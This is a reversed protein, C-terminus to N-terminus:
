PMYDVMTNLYLVIVKMIDDQSLSRRLVKLRSMMKFSHKTLTDIHSTWSMDHDFQIGLIKMKSQVSVTENDVVIEKRCESSKNIMFM